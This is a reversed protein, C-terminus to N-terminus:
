LIKLIWKIVEWYGEIVVGNILNNLLEKNKQKMKEIDESSNIFLQIKHGLKKEFKEIDPSKKSPSVVLIDIDSSSINEGKATSGFLITAEPHNFFDNLYEILGSRRIKQIYFHSKREKFLKNESNARFILHNYKKQSLVLGEKELAKLDKSITTPSKKLLRALERVYFEQEPNEYFYELLRDM